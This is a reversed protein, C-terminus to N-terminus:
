DGGGIEEIEDGHEHTTRALEERTFKSDEYIVTRNRGGEKARYLAADAKSIIEDITEESDSLEAIGVSVTAKFEEGSETAFTIKSLERRFKEAPVLANLASTAPLIVIFEEGGFRGCMDEARFIGEKHFLQGLSRLVEDGVLHGYTDNILKFRDIDIMMCSLHGFYENIPSGPVIRRPDVGEPGAALRWRERSARGKAVRLSEIIGKRNLLKTLDDVRNQLTLELNIREVQEKSSRLQEREVFCQLDDAVYHALRRNYEFDVFVKDLAAKFRVLGTPRGGGAAVKASTRPLAFLNGRQLVQGTEEPSFSRAVVLFAPEVPTGAAALASAIERSSEERKFAAKDVLFAFPAAASNAAVHARLRDLIGGSGASAGSGADARVVAYDRPDLADLYREVSQPSGQLVFITKLM